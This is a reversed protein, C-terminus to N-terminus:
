RSKKSNKSDSFWAYIFGILGLLFIGGFAAIADLTEPNINPM